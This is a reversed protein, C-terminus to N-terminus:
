PGTEGALLGSELAVENEESRITELTLLTGAEPAARRLEHRELTLRADRGNLSLWDLSGAPIAQCGDDLVRCVVRNRKAPNTPDSPDDTVLVIEVWTAGSAEWQVLLEAGVARRATSLGAIPDPLGLRADVDPFTAAGSPDTSWLVRPEVEGLLSAQPASAWSGTVTGVDLVGSALDEFRAGTVTLAM